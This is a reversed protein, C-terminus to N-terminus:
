VTWAKKLEMRTDPESLVSCARLYRAMEVLREETTSTHLVARGFYSVMAQTEVIVFTDDKASPVPMVMFEPLIAEHM